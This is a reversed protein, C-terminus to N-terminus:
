GSVGDIECVRLDLTRPNNRGPNKKSPSLLKQLEFRQSTLIGEANWRRITGGNEREWKRTLYYGGSRFAVAQKGTLLLNDLLNRAPYFRRFGKM